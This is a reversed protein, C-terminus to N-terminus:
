WFICKKQPNMPSNISCHFDQSFEPINMLPILVRLRNPSHKITSAINKSLEKQVTCRTNAFAIWFLQSPKYDTLGNLLLEDPHKSLWEKYALYAQRLGTNDAFDERSSKRPDIWVDKSSRKSNYQNILCQMRGSYDHKSQYDWWNNRNGFKDYMQGVEDLAHMMEHGVTFGLGAFNMYHPHETNYYSGQLIAAPIRLSNDYQIYYANIKTVDSFPGTWDLKGPSKIDNRWKFRNINQVMDLWSMGSKINLDEYFQNVKRDDQFEDPYGVSWTITNLKEVAKYKTHSGVWDVRALTRKTSERVFQNLEAVRDRLKMDFRKKLYVASTALHMHQKVLGLCKKWRVTRQSDNIKLVTKMFDGALNKIRSDLHDVLSLLLRWFAYNALSRKETGRLLNCYPGIFSPSSILVTDSMELAKSPELIETLYEQWPIQDGPCIDHLKSITFYTTPSNATPNKRAAQRVKALKIEFNLMDRLNEAIHDYQIQINLSKSLTKVLNIMFDLYASVRNDNFGNSLVAAPFLTLTEDLQITRKSEIKVMKVNLFFDYVLGSKHFEYVIKKWDFSRENWSMDLVPWGGHKKIIAYLDKNSRDNINEEDTCTLFFVHLKQMFEPDNSTIEKEISHRLQEDVRDSLESNVDIRWKENSLVENSKYNGCAFKYFDHCANTKTDMNSLIRKGAKNCAATNCVRSHADPFLNLEFKYMTEDESKQPSNQELKLLQIRISKHSAM